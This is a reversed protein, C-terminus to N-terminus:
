LLWGGRPAKSAITPLCSPTVFLILLLDRWLPVEKKSVCLLDQTLGRNWAVSDLSVSLACNLRQLPVNHRAAINLCVFSAPSGCILVQSHCACWLGPLHCGRGEYRWSLSIDSASVEWSSATVMFGRVCFCTFCLSM